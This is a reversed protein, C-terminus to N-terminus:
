EETKVQIRKPRESEVKPLTIKLVGKSCEAKIKDADVNAPLTVTRSFSGYRRESRYYNKGQDETEESKEGKITLNQGSISIDIEKPDLGPVDAKIVVSNDDEVVDLTPSFKGWERFQELGIDGHWVMEYLRNLDERLNVLGLDGEGKRTRRPVMSM